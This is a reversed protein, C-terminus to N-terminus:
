KRRAKEIDRGSVSILEGTRANFRFEIKSHTPSLLDVEYGFYGEENELEVEVIQGYYREEIWNMISELSVIEKARVAERLSKAGAEISAASASLLLGLLLSGGLLFRSHRLSTSIM